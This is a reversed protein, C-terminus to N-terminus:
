VRRHVIAVLEGGMATCRSVFADALSIPRTFALKRLVICDVRLTFFTQVSSYPAFHNQLDALSHYVWSEAKKGPNLRTYYDFIFVGGPRVRALLSETARKAESLLPGNYLSCSRTFVCDFQTPDVPELLDAVYFRAGSAGHQARAAAIGEASIDVGTAKFGLDQFLRTFFGQGCGADLVECGPSLNAKRTLAKLYPRYVWAKYGFYNAKVYMRDYSDAISEGRRFM